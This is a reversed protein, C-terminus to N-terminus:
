SCEHINAVMTGHHEVAVGKIDELGLVRLVRLVEAVGDWGSAVGDAGGGERPRKPEVVRAAVM